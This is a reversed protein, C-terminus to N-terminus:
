GGSLGIGERQKWILMLKFLDPEKLEAFLGAIAQAQSRVRKLSVAAYRQPFRPRITRTTRAWTTRKLSAAAYRQPFGLRLQYMKLLNVHKM